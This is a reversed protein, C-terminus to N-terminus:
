RINEDPLYELIIKNYDNQVAYEIIPVLDVDKESSAWWLTHLPDNDNFGSFYAISQELYETMTSFNSDYEGIAADLIEFNKIVQINQIIRGDTDSVTYDTGLLGINTIKFM